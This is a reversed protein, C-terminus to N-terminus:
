YIENKIEVSMTIDMDMDMDMDMDIDLYKMDMDLYKLVTLGLDMPGMRNMRNIKNQRTVALVQLGRGAELFSFIESLIPIDFEVRAM